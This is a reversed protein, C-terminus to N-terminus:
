IEDDHDEAKPPEAPGPEINIAGRQALLTELEARPMALVTEKALEALETEYEADSLALGGKGPTLKARERQEKAWGMVARTYLDFTELWDRDPMGPVTIPKGDPHYLPEQEDTGANRYLQVEMPVRGLWLSLRKGLRGCLSMLRDAEQELPHRKITAGGVNPAAVSPLQYHPDRRM